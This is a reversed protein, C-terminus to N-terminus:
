FYMRCQACYFRLHEEVWGMPSDCQPCAPIPGNTIARASQRPPPLSAPATSLPIPTTRPAPEESSSTGVSAPPPAAHEITTPRVPTEPADPQTAPSEAERDWSPAITGLDTPTRFRPKSAKATADLEVSTNTEPDLAPQALTKEDVDTQVRVNSDRASLVSPAVANDVSPPPPVAHEMTPFSPRLPDATALSPQAFTPISPRM